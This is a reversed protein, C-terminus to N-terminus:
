PRNGSLITHTCANLFVFIPVFSVEKLENRRYNEERLMFVHIIRNLECLKNEVLSKHVKKKGFIQMLEDVATEFIIQIDSAPIQKNPNQEDFCCAQIFQVPGRKKNAETRSYSSGKKVELSAYGYAKLPILGLLAAMHIVHHVNFSGVGNVEDELGNKLDNFAEECNRPDSEVSSNCRDFLDLMLKIPCHETKLYEPYQDCTDEAEYYKEYISKGQSCYTHRPQKCSGPAHFMRRESFHFMAEYLNDFREDHKEWTTVGYEDYVCEEGNEMGDEGFRNPFLGTVESVRRIIEAVDSSGNSTIACYAIFCACDHKEIVKDERERIAAIKM